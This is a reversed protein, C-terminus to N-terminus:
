ARDSTTSLEGQFGSDMEEEGFAALTVIWLQPVPSHRICCHKRNPIAPSSDVLRLFMDISAFATEPIERRRNSAAAEPAAPRDIVLVCERVESAEAEWPIQALSRIRTPAIPTPPRPDNSNSCNGSVACTTATASQL